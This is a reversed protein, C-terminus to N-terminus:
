RWLECKERLEFLCCHILGHALHALLDVFALHSVVLKHDIAQDGEVVPQKNRGLEGQELCDEGRRVIVAMLSGLSCKMAEASIKRQLVGTGNDLVIDSSTCGTLSVLNLM